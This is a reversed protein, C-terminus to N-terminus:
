YITNDPEYKVEGIVKKGVGTSSDSGPLTYPVKANGRVNQVTGVGDADNTVNRVNLAYRYDGPAILREDADQNLGGTFLRQEAM